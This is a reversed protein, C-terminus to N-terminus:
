APFVELKTIFTVEKPVVRRGVAIKEAEQGKTFSPVVVM